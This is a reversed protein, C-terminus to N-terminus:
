RAAFLLNGGDCGSSNDSGAGSCNNDSGTRSNDAPLSVRVRANVTGSDSVLSKITIFSGDTATVAKDRM